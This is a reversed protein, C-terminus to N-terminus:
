RAPLESLPLKAYYCRGGPVSRCFSRHEQTDMHRLIADVCPTPTGCHECVLLGAEVVVEWALISEPHLPPSM